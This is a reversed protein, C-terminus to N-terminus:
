SDGDTTRLVQLHRSLADATERGYLRKMSEWTQKGLLGDIPLPEGGRVLYEQVKEVAKEYGRQTDPERDRIATLEKMLADRTAPSMKKLGDANPTEALRQDRLIKLLTPEDKVVEWTGKGFKGDVKLGNLEQLWAVGQEFGGEKFGRELLGERDRLSLRYGGDPSRWEPPVPPFRKEKAEFGDTFRAQQASLAPQPKTAQRLSQTSTVPATKTNAAAFAPARRPTINM